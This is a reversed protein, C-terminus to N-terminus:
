KYFVIKNNFIPAVILPREPSVLIRERARLMSKGQENLVLSKDMPILQAKFFYQLKCLTLDIYDHIVARQSRPCDPPLEIRVPVTTIGAPCIKNEFSHAIFTHEWTVHKKKIEEYEAVM